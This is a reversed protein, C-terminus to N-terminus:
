TAVVDVEVNQGNSSAPFTGVALTTGTVSITQSAFTQTYTTGGVQITVYVNYTVTSTATLTVAVCDFSTTASPSGTTCTGTADLLSYATVGVLSNPIQVSPSGGVANAASLNLSTAYAAGTFLVVSLVFFAFKGNM